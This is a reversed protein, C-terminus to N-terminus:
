EALLEPETAPHPKKVERRAQLLAGLLQEYAQAAGLAANMNAKHQEAQGRARAANDRLTEISINQLDETM